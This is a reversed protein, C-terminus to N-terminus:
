ENTVTWGGAALATRNAAQRAGHTTIATNTAALNAEAVNVLGTAAVVAQRARALALSRAAREAQAAALAIGIRNQGAQTLGPNALANRLQQAKTNATDFAAQAPPVDNNAATVVNRAAALAQTRTVRQALLAAPIWEEAWGLRWTTVVAAFHRRFDVLLATCEECPSRYAFLHLEDLSGGVRDLAAQMWAGCGSVIQLEAHNGETGRQPGWIPSAPENRHVARMAAVIKGHEGASGRVENLLEPDLPM